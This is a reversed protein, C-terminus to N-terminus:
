LNLKIIISIFNVYYFVSTGNNFTNSIACCRSDSSTLRIYLYMYSCNM